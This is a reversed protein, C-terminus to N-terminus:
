FGMVTMALFLKGGVLWGVFFSRWGIRWSVVAGYVAATGSAFMGGVGLAQSTAPSLALVHFLIMVIWCAGFAALMALMFVGMHTLARWILRRSELREVLRKRIADIETRNAERRENGDWSGGPMTQRRRRDVGDWTALKGAVMAGTAGAAAPTSGFAITGPQSADTARETSSRRDVPGHEVAPPQWPVEVAAEGKEPAARMTQASREGDAEPRTQPDM